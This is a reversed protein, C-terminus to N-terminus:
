GRLKCLDVLKFLGFAEIVRGRERARSVKVITSVILVLLEVIGRISIRFPSTKNSFYKSFSKSFSVTVHAESLRM